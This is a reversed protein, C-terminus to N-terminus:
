LESAKNLHAHSCPSIPQGQSTKITQPAGACGLKNIEEQARQGLVQEQHSLTYACLFLHDLLLIVLFSQKCEVDAM